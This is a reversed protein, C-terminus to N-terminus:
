RKRSETKVGKAKTRIEGKRNEVKRSSIAFGKERLEETIAL